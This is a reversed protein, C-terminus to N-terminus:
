TLRNMLRINGRYSRDCNYPCSSCEPSELTLVPIHCILCSLFFPPNLISLGGMKQYALRTVDEVTM